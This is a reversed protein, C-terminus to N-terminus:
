GLLRCVVDAERKDWGDDCIVGWDTVESGLVKLEVRGRHAAEGGRLRIEFGSGKTEAGEDTRIIQVSVPREAEQRSESQEAVLLRTLRKNEEELARNLERQRNLEASCDQATDSVERRYRAAGDGARALGGVMASCDSLCAWLVVLVIGIQRM